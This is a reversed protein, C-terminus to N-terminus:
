SVGAGSQNLWKLDAARVIYVESKQVLSPDYTHAGLSNVKLKYALSENEEDNMSM